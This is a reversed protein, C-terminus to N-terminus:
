VNFDNALAKCESHLLKVFNYFSCKSDPNIFKKKLLRNFNMSRPKAFEEWDVYFKSPEERKMYVNEFYETFEAFVDFAESKDKLYDFAQKSKDTPVFPMCMFQHFLIDAAADTYTREFFSHITKAKRQVANCYHYWFSKVVSEPYTHNIASRLEREFDVWVQTVQLSWKEEVKQIVSDFTEKNCNTLLVLILMFIAVLFQITLSIFTLFSM